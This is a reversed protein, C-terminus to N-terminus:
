IFGEGQVQINGPTFPNKPGYHFNYSPTVTANYSKRASDFEQEAKAKWKALAERQEPTDEAPPTGKPPPTYAPPPTLAAADQQAFVPINWTIALLLGAIASLAGVSKRM